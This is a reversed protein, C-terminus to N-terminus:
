VNETEGSKGTEGNAGAIVALVFRAILGLWFQIREPKMEIASGGNEPPVGVGDLADLAAQALIRLWVQIREPKMGSPPSPDFASEEGVGPPSPAVELIVRALLRIWHFIREVNM